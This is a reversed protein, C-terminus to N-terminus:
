THHTGQVSRHMAKELENVVEESVNEQLITVRV